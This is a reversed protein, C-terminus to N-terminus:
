LASSTTQAQVFCSSSATMAFSATTCSFNDFCPLSPGTARRNGVVVAVVSVLRPTELRVAVPPVPRRLRVIVPATVTVPVPTTFPPAMVSDVGPMRLMWPLMLPPAFVTVSVDVPADMPWVPPRTVAPVSASEAVEPIVIVDAVIMRLVVMM